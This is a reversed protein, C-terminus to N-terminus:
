MVFVGLQADALPLKLENAAYTPLFVAGVYNIATGAAILCFSAILERPHDSVLQGLTTPEPQATRAKEALYAEFEPWEECKKRLYSGVPGILIGLIFPVRWGWSVLADATLNRSLAFAMSAGIAFALGQSVMQFSGYYGRRGEPAFEILMASAS